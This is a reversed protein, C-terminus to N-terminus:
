PSMSPAISDGWLECVVVKLVIAAARGEVGRSLLCSVSDM